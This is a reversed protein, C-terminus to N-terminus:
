IKLLYSDRTRIFNNKYFLTTRRSHRIKCTYTTSYFNNHKVKHEDQPANCGKLAPQLSCTNEGLDQFFISGSGDQQKQSFRL